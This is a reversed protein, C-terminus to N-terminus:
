RCFYIYEDTIDEIGEFNNSALYSRKAISCTRSNRSTDQIYIITAQNLVIMTGVELGDSYTDRAFQASSLECGFINDQDNITCTGMTYVDEVFYMADPAFSAYSTSTKKKLGVIDTYYSITENKAQEYDFDM